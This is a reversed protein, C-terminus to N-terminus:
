LSKGRRKSKSKVQNKTKKPTKGDSKKPAKRNSKKPAKKSKFKNRCFLRGLIDCRSKNEDEDEGEGEGKPTVSIRRPTSVWGTGTFNHGTRNHDECYQGFIATKWCKDVVCPIKVNTHGYRRGDM